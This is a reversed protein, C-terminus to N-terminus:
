WALSITNALLCVATKTRLLFFKISIKIKVGLWDPNNKFVTRPKSFSDSYVMSESIWVVLLPWKANFGKIQLCLSRPPLRIWLSKWFIYCFIIRSIEDPSNLFAILTLDLFLFNNLYGVLTWIDEVVAFSALRTVKSVRSWGFRSECTAFM